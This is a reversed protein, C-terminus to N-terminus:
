CKFVLMLLGNECPWVHLRIQYFTILKEQEEGETPRKINELSQHVRHSKGKSLIACNLDQSNDNDTLLKKATELQLKSRYSCFM